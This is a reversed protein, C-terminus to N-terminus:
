ERRMSRRLTPDVFAGVSKNGISARVSCITADMSGVITAAASPERAATVKVPVSPGSYASRDGLAM